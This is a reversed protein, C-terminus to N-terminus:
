GFRIVRGLAALLRGGEDWDPAQGSRRVAPIPEGRESFSRSTGLHLITMIGPRDRFSWHLLLERLPPTAVSGGLVDNSGTLENARTWRWGGLRSAMTLTKGDDPRRRLHLGGPM